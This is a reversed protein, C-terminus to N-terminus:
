SLQTDTPVGGNANVEWDINGSSVAAGSAVAVGHLQTPKVGSLLVTFSRQTTETGAAKRTALLSNSCM